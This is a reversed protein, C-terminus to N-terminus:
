SRKGCYSVVERPQIADLGRDDILCDPPIDIAEKIIKRILKRWCSNVAKIDCNTVDFIPRPPCRFSGQAKVSCPTAM